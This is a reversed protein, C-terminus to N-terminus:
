NSHDRKTPQVQRMNGWPDPALQNPVREMKQRYARDIADQKEQEEATLPRRDNGLLNMEPTPMQAFAEGDFGLCVALLLVLVFIARGSM